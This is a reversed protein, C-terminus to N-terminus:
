EQHTKLYHELKMMLAITKADTIRDDYIMAKIDDFSYSVVEVDETEDLNQGVFELDKAYYLHIVEDIYAGAPHMIGLPVMTNAQYGTEEQLERHAALIPDESPDDIKGAPFELLNRNLGFRFQDVLFYNTGDLTAAVCVAGPHSFVEIPFQKDEMIIDAEHVDIIIGKRVRKKNVIKM